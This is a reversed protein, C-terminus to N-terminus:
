FLFPIFMRTRQMYARYADGFTQINEREEVRATAVLAVSSALVLLLGPLAPQKFYVGWALFLLSSYLPHRIYRYLGSTVLQTTKEFAFDPTSDRQANAKGLQRLLRVGEILFFLSIILSVWSIWQNWSFPNKFWHAANLVFLGLICEWAFFRYFGHSRPNLLSTWSVAVLLLSGVVFVIWQIM